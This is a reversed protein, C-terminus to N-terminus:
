DARLCGRGAKRRFNAVASECESRSGTALLRWDGRARSVYARITPLPSLTNM